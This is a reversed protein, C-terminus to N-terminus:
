LSIDFSEIWYRAMDLHVLLCRDALRVSGIM